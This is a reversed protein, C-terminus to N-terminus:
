YKLIFWHLKTLTQQIHFYLKFTYSCMVTTIKMKDISPRMVMKALDRM